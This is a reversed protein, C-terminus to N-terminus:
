RAADADDALRNGAHARDGEPQPDTDARAVLAGRQRTSRVVELVQQELAGPSAVRHRDGGREVLDAALEVGEGRLLVGAVVRPHEVGIQRDGDVDDAVHDGRRDERGTLDVVLAAHDELLDGHMVVVGAVRHVVREGLQDPRVVGQTARHESRRLGDLGHLARRDHAVVAPVVATVPQDDRGGPVDVV